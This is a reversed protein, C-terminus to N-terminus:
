RNFPLRKVGKETSWSDLSTTRLQTGAPAARRALWNLEATGNSGDSFELVCATFRCPNESELWFALGDGGEPNKVSQGFSTLIEFEQRRRFPESNQFPKCSFLNGSSTSVNLKVVKYSGVFFSFFFNPKM